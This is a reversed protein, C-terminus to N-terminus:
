GSCNTRGESSYTLARPRESRQDEGEVEMELESDRSEQSRSRKPDSEESRMDSVDRGKRKAAEKAVSAYSDPHECWGWHLDLGPVEWSQSKESDHDHDSILDEFMENNLALNPNFSFRPDFPRVDPWREISTDDGFYKEWKVEQNNGLRYLAEKFFRREPASMTQYWHYVVNGEARRVNGALTYEWRISGIPPIRGEFARLENYMDDVIWATSDQYGPDLPVFRPIISKEWHPVVSLAKYQPEHINEALSEDKTVIHDGLRYYLGAGRWAHKYLWMAEISYMRQRSTKTSGKNLRPLCIYPSVGKGAMDPPITPDVEPRHGYLEKDLPNIGCCHTACARSSPVAYSCQLHIWQECWCCPVLETVQAKPCLACSGHDAARACRVAGTANGDVDCQRCLNWFPDRMDSWLMPNGMPNELM